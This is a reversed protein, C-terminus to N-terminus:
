DNCVSFVSTYRKAFYPPSVFHDVDGFEYYEGCEYVAKVFCDEYYVEGNVGDDYVFMSIKDDSSLMKKGEKGDEVCFWDLGKLYAISADKYEPFDNSGGLLFRLNGDKIGDICGDEAEPFTHKNFEIITELDASIKSGLLEEFFITFDSRLFSALGDDGFLSLWDSKDRVYAYEDADLVGMIIEENYCSIVGNGKGLKLEVKGDSSVYKIWLSDYLCSKWSLVSCSDIHWELSRFYDLSVDYANDFTIIRIKEKNRFKPVFCSM